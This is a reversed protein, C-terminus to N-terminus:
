VNRKALRALRILAVNLASAALMFLVDIAIGTAAFKRKRRASALLGV